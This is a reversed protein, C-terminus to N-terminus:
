AWAWSLKQLKLDIQGVGQSSAFKLGAFYAEFELYYPSLKVTDKSPCSTGGFHNKGAFRELRWLRGQESFIPTYGTQATSKGVNPDHSRATSELPFAMETIKADLLRLPRGWKDLIKFKSGYYEAAKLELWSCSTQPEPCLPGDFEMQTLPIMVAEIGNISHSLLQAKPHQTFLSSHREDIRGGPDINKQLDLLADMVDPLASFEQSEQIFLSIAVCDKPLAAQYPKPVRLTFAHRLPQHTIRCYPWHESTLGPPRGWLWGNQWLSKELDRATELLRPSLPNLDYAVNVATADDEYLSEYEAQPNRLYFSKVKNEFVLVELELEPQLLFQFRLEQSSDEKAINLNLKQLYLDQLEYLPMGIYIGEVKIYSPFQSYFSIEGLREHKDLRASFSYRSLFGHLYGDPEIIVQSWVSDGSRRQLEQIPMQPRLSGLHEYVTTTSTTTAVVTTESM